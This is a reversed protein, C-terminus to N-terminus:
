AIKHPATYAADFLKQDRTKAQEAADDRVLEKIEPLKPLMEQVMEM